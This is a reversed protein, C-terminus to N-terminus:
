VVAVLSVCLSCPCPCPCLVSPVRQPPEGYILAGGFHVRSCYSPTSDFFSGLGFLTTRTENGVRFTGGSLVSGWSVSCSLFLVGMMHDRGLYFGVNCVAFGSDAREFLWTPIKLFSLLLDWFCPIYLCVHYGHTKLNQKPRAGWVGRRSPAHSWPM